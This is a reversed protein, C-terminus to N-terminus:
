PHEQRHEWRQLQKWLWLSVFTLIMPILRGLFFRVFLRDILDLGRLCNEGFLGIRNM